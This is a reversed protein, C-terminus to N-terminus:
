GFIVHYLGTWVTFGDFLPIPLMNFVFLFLNIQKSLTFYYRARPTLHFRQAEYIVFWSVLFLVLNVGPGAFAVLASEGQTAAGMISVFAPVFFIFNFKMLKLAIGILLWIYAAEFTASLGFSLAVFKHGLEHLIIAPAVVGCAFWFDNWLFGKRKNLYREVPNSPVVRFVDHFIYGVALTMVILDIFERISWQFFIM